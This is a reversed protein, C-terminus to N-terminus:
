QDKLAPRVKLEREKGNSKVILKVETEPKASQLAFVYDYMNEIKNEDFQVIVDGTKLGAKEAPSDKSVGSLRVGKIGEQSYDPITGLYVRFTRGQMRKTPDGAVKEYRVVTSKLTAIRDIYSKVVESVRLLGKINITEFIDRPSHYEEHSGTTFTISPIEALYFTTSDTPLYPDSMLHLPVGKVLAVEESLGTWEKASGVGQVQLKDRLRGVMDMNLAAEFLQNFSLKTHAEMSKVFNSSGILGYEEGSWIAFYIPKKLFTKQNPLSYWHALELLASMGSANDDAGYHIMNQEGSRALSSWINEGNGLHDGHAGILLGKNLKNPKPGVRGILSKGISKKQILDIKASLYQSDLNFGATEKLSSWNKYVEDYNKYKNDSAKLLDSFIEPTIRISPLDPEITSGDFRLFKIGHNAVVVVGYAGAKKAVNVKYHTAHYSSLHQKYEKEKPDPSGDLMMVWKGKVDIGAYSDYEPWKDTSPAKLGFGVFAIPAPTFDGSKSYSILQFDKGLIPKLNFRGKFEVENLNGAKVGSVFEFSHIFSNGIAPQLGWSAFLNSLNTMYATEEFSGTLRGRLESSSFYRVLDNLNKESIDEDFNFTMDKVFKNKNILKLAEEHEWNALYIQSEGKENRKTWSIKTGDPSFTPLGDFGDDFTIRIPKGNGESEVIFLEFNSYGLASSTFIIYKGSPHFFPAWSMVDLNTIQKQDTGDTNMTYIEARSGDPTFRRWTVKKGDASFFPGGDYGRSNTLRRVKSGNSNMIYIEMAFSSDKSIIKQEEASYENKSFQSRNSAFVISKGDPSYSGEADYGLEKTLQKINKGSLDSEFIDYKDDYNWAYRRKVPQAREALEKKVKADFEADLHSSSWMVKKDNPHIWGCTTMGKGTSIRNSKGSKLDLLYMQYFPNSEERESQYVMKTGDHNFYGEGSRPGVFTIQRPNKILESNALDIYKESTSQKEQATVFVRSGLTILIFALFFSIKLTYKKM